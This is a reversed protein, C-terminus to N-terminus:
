AGMNVVDYIQLGKENLVFKVKDMSDGLMYTAFKKM